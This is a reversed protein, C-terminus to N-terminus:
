KRANEIKGALVGAVIGCVIQAPVLIPPAVQGIAWSVCCALAICAFLIM